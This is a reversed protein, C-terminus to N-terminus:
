TIANRGRGTSRSGAAARAPPNERTETRVVGVWQNNRKVYVDTMLWNAEPRTGIKIKLDYVLVASDPTLRRVWARPGIRYDFTVRPVVTKVYPDTETAKLPDVWLGDPGMLRRMGEPDKAKHTEWMKRSEALLEAELAKDEASQVYAQAWAHSTGGFSALVVLVFLMLPRTPIRHNGM